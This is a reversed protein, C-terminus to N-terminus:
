FNESFHTYTVVAHHTLSLIPSPIPAGGEDGPMQQSALIHTVVDTVVSELVINYNAIDYYLKVLVPVQASNFKAADFRMRVHTTPYWAGGEWVPPGAAAKEVFTSYDQTWMQVVTVEANLCYALFDAANVQGKEFWYQGVNRTFQVLQTAGVVSPDSLQFGLFNLRMRNTVLDYVAYESDDLLRREAIASEAAPIYRSRIYKLAETYGYVDTGFLEEMAEMLDVWAQHGMYNPLLDALSPVSDGYFKAVNRGKVLV